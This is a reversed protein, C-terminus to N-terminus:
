STCRCRLRMLALSFLAAHGEWGGAGYGAGAFGSADGLGVHIGLTVGAEHQLVLLCTPRICLPALSDALRSYSSALRRLRWARM